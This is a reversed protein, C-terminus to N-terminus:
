LHAPEELGDDETWLRSDRGRWYNIWSSQGWLQNDIPRVLRRLDQVHGTEEAREYAIVWVCKMDPYVECRGDPFVGGCPGNRLQKPCTQPCAYATTPLACQACMRCGFLQRKAKEEVWTFAKYVPPAAEAFRAFSRWVFNPELVRHLNFMSRASARPRRPTPSIQHSVGLETQARQPGAPTATMGNTEYEHQKHQM